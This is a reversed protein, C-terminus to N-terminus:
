ARVRKFKVKWLWRNGTIKLELFASVSEVIFEVPHNRGRVLVGKSLPCTCMHFTSRPTSFLHRGWTNLGHYEADHWPEDDIEFYYTDLEPNDRYQIWFSDTFDLDITQECEDSM